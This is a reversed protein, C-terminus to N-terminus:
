FVIFLKYVEFQIRHFTRAEFFVIACKFIQARPVNKPQDFNGLFFSGDCVESHSNSNKFTLDIKLM